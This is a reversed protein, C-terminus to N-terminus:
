FSIEEMPVFRGDVLILPQHALGDSCRKPTKRAQAINVRLGQFEAFSVTLRKRASFNSLCHLGLAVRKTTFNVIAYSLNTGGASSRPLHLFDFEAVIGWEDLLMETTYLPPINRVM